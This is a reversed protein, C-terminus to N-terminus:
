PAAQILRARAKDGGILVLMRDMEPGHEQDTLVRRLPMFLAKGKRGTKAKVADVWAKTEGYTLADWTDDQRRERLFHRSGAHESWGDLHDLLSAPYDKLSEGLDVLVDTGNTMPACSSALSM